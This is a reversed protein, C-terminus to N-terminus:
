LPTPRVQDQLCELVYVRAASSLNGSRERDIRALLANVSVGEAAAIAKLADWFPEELSVSTTHGAIKVSRKKVMARDHRRAGTLVAAEPRDHIRAPGM